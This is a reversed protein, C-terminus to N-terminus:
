YYGIPMIYLPDLKDDLNLIKKVRNDEFAGIVVTGLNLSESQLYINQSVHGAEMYVYREGRNGYVEKTRDFDACIIINFSADYIYEQNLSAQMLESSKDEEFIKILSHEQPIYQYLGQNLNEVNKVLVFIEIPYTGGASPSTRKNSISTIGQASWLLQSLKNLSIQKDIFDRISRRNLLAEEISLNSQKNPESLTIKEDMIEVGDNDNLYNEKFLDLLLFLILLLIILFILILRPNFKKM